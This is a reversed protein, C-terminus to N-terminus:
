KRLRREIAAKAVEAPLQPTSKGSESRQVDLYKAADQATPARWFDGPAIDFIAALRRQNVISMNRKGNIWRNVTERSVGLLGGVEEDSLQFFQFWEHLRLPAEAPSPPTERKRAM